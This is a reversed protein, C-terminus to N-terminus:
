RIPKRGDRKWCEYIRLASLADNVAYQIQKESLPFQSWDSTSIRKSKPLDVGLYVASAKKAGVESQKRERLLRALDVANQVSIGLKRKVSRLDDSLGFGAKIIDPHELVLSLMASVASDNQDRVPILYADTQTALQILHPGTHQVGRQFVPRTETDFGIVQQRLLDQAAQEAQVASTVIHIHAASLGPFLPLAPAPQATGTENSDARSGDQVVAQQREGKM